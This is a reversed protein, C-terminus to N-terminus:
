RSRKSVRVGAKARSKFKEVAQDYTLPKNDPGLEGVLMGRIIREETPTIEDDDEDPDAAQRSNREGGQAAIRALRDQEKQSKKEDAIQSSTKHKGSRLFINDAKEVAMEMALGEKVGAQRLAIYHKKTEGFFESNKDVLDPFQKELRQEAAMMGARTEIRAEVDNASVYGAKKAWGDLYKEFAKGGKTALDLVDVDPEPDAAPAPDAPKATAKEHWYQTATKHEDVQKSLDDIQKQLAAVDAATQAPDQPPAAPAVPLQPIM